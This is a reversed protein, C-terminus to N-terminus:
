FLIHRTTLCHLVAKNDKDNKERTVGEEPQNDLFWHLEKEAVFTYPQNMDIYSLVWKLITFYNAELQYFYIFFFTYGYMKNDLTNSEIYDTSVHGQHQLKSLTTIWIVEQCYVLSFKQVVISVISLLMNCITVKQTIELFMTLTVPVAKLQSQIM